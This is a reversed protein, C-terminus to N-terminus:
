RRRIEHIIESIKVPHICNLFPLLKIRRLYASIKLIYYWRSGRNVHNQFRLTDLQYDPEVSAPDILNDLDLEEGIDRFLGSMNKKTFHVGDEGVNSIMNVQPVISLGNNALLTFAWQYAWSDQNKNLNHYKEFNYIFLEKFEPSSDFYTDKLIQQSKEPWEKLQMDYKKWARSWTAWGWIWSWRSFYYSTEIKKLNSIQNDGTISMIKENDAYKELMKECFYFFNQNPICDDELIIGREETDFMWTIASSIARGCGLNEDLFRTHLECNWDVQKIIDRTEQCLLDEGPKNPRPGDASVYLKAPKVKKIQDFVQQATDKRNFILFLVPTQFLEESM